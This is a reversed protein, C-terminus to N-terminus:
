FILLWETSVGPFDIIRLFKLMGPIKLKIEKKYQSLDAKTSDLKNKINDIMRLQEKELESIIKTIEEIKDTKIMLKDNEELHFNNDESSEIIWFFCTNEKEYIPLIRMFNKQFLLNNNNRGKM